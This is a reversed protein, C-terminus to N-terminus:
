LGGDVTWLGCTRPGREGQFRFSGVSPASAFFVQPFDKQWLTAYGAGGIPRGNCGPEVSKVQDALGITKLASKGVTAEGKEHRMKTRSKDVVTDGRHQPSDVWGLDQGRRYM